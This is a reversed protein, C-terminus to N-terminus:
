DVNCHSKLLWLHHDVTRAIKTYIDTTAADGLDSVQVMVLRVFRSHLSVRQALAQLMDEVTVANFPFESLQSYQAAIQVTALPTSALASIREIPLM